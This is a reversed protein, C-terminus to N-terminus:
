GRGDSKQRSRVDILQMDGRRTRRYIQLRDTYEYIFINEDRRSRFVLPQEKDENITELRKQAASEYDYNYDKYSPSSDSEFYKKRLSEDDFFSEEREARKEEKPPMQRVPESKATQELEVVGVAFSEDAGAPVNRSQETTDRRESINAEIKNKRKKERKLERESKRVVQRQGRKYKDIYYSVVFGVSASFILGVIFTQMVDSLSTNTFACALLFAILYLSPLWLGLAFLLWASVKVVGSILVKCFRILGNVIM